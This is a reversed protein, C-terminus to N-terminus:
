EGGGVVNYQTGGVRVALISDLRYDRLEVEREVEQNLNPKRPTLFQEIQATDGPGAIEGDITYYTELRREVKIELYFADKHAVFPTGQVRQGWKRPAAHFEPVAYADEITQPAAERRRQNNVANEYSFNIIGNIRSLKLISCNIYPNGTKRLAPITATLITVIRPGAISSLLAVLEPPSITATDQTAPVAPTITLALADTSINSQTLPM